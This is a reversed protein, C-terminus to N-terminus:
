PAAIPSFPLRQKISFDREPDLVVVPALQALPTAVSKADASVVIVAQALDFYPQVIRQVNAPDLELVARHFSDYDEAGLGLRRQEALMESLSQMPNPDNLFGRTLSRAAHEVEASSPPEHALRALERTIAKVVPVTDASLATAEVQVVSPADRLPLLASSVELAWQHQEHLDLYLRSAPGSGLIYSSLSLAPWAASKRPAGLVGAMVQSLPSDTRDVVLIELREPGAPRDFSAVAPPPSGPWKEFAKEAADFVVGPELSGVVVLDANSPTLHERRWATSDALQLRELDSAKADFHGYAHVGTAGAFLQRFLVLRNGWVFDGRARGQAQEIEDQKVRSFETLPLRAEALMQGLAALAPALDANLVSLTLNTHDSGTTV